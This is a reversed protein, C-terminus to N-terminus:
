KITNSKKTDKPTYFFNSKCHNYTDPMLNKVQRAALNAMGEKTYKDSAEELEDEDWYHLYSVLEKLSILNMTKLTKLNEQFNTPTQLM